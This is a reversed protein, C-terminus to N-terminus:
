RGILKTAITFAKSTIIDVKEHKTILLVSAISVVGSIITDLKVPEFKRGRLEERIDVLTEIQGTVKEYNDDQASLSALELSLTQLQVDIAKLAEKVQQSKM